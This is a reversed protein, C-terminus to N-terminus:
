TFAANFPFLLGYSSLIVLDYCHHYSLLIMVSKTHFKMFSMHAVQMRLAM